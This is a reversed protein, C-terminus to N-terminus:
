TSVWTKLWRMVSWVTMCCYPTCISDQPREGFPEVPEEGVLDESVDRIHVALGDCLYGQPSQELAAHDDDRLRNALVPHGLVEVHEPELEGVVLHAPDRRKVEAAGHEEVMAVGLVDCAQVGQM